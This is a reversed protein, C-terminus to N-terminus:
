ELRRGLDDLRFTCRQNRDVANSGPGRIPNFKFLAHPVQRTTQVSVFPCCGACCPAWAPLCIFFFRFCLSVSGTPALFFILTSGMAPRVKGMMRVCAAGLAVGQARKFSVVVVHRTDATGGSSPSVVGPAHIMELTALSTRAARAFLTM